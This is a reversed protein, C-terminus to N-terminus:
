NVYFKVYHLKNFVDMYVAYLPIINEVDNLTLKDIDIRVHADESYSDVKKNELKGPNYAFSIKNAPETIFYENKWLKNEKKLEDYGLKTLIGMFIVSVDYKTFNKLSINIEEDKNIDIIPGDTPKDTSKNAFYIHKSYVCPLLDLDDNDILAKFIPLSILTSIISIINNRADDGTISQYRWIFIWAIIVGLLLLISETARKIFRGRLHLFIRFFEVMFFVFIFLCIEFIFYSFLFDKPELKDSILFSTCIALVSYIITLVVLRWHKKLNQIETKM